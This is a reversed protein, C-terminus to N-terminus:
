VRAQPGAGLQTSNETRADSSLYISDKAEATEARSADRQTLARNRIREAVEVGGRTIAIARRAPVGADAATQGTRRLYAKMNKRLWKKKGGKGGSGEPKKSNGM